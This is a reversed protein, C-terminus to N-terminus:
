NQHVFDSFDPNFKATMFLGVSSTVDSLAVSLLREFPRLLKNKFAINRSVEVPASRSTRTLFRDDPPIIASAGNRALRPSGTSIFRFFTPQIVPLITHSASDLHPM